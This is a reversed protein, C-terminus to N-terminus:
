WARRLVARSSVVPSPRADSVFVLVNRIDAPRPVRKFGASRRSYASAAPAADRAVTLRVLGAIRGAAPRGAAGMAPWALSVVVGATVVARLLAM